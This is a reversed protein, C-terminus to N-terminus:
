QWELDLPMLNGEVRSKLQLQRGNDNTIGSSVFSITRSV